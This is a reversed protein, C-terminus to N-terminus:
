EYHKVLSQFAKYQSLHIDGSLAKDLGSRKLLKQVPVKVESLHLQIGQEHLRHNLAELMEVASLDITNIAACDLIVARAKPRKLLLDDIYEELYSVNSFLLSEDVRLSLVSPHCEVDFHLINRFHETDSVLGVEAIHPRSTHHLLLLISAIIGSAVGVEVGMLLTLVVTILVAAFDSKSFDWARKFISFDVLSLVAVIITAALMAIPLYHLLPTLFLAALSIGIATFIAAFQTEAGADYNVVSRAFGGTVPFAGSASSAINAAGLAILEQNGDIRERKKASLTRGVSVSEVYGIISILVAPIFLAEVAAWSFSPLSLSPMGTPISGVIAVGQKDLGFNAVLLTTVAVGVVPAAKSVSFALGKELGLQQLFAAAGQRAWYLFAVSGIGILVTYLNFQSANIVTSYAIEIFNHGEVSVGLIHKFQSLAIVIGSATIFGAVVPHSLFNSIFGLKFVGLLLLFIGSLLALLMAGEIYGIIGLATVKGLASATMLSAIAVPGVALTKCSGFLAYAILPFISAYLGLEAPVGALMAYALSQPILMITVVTAAILDRSFKVRDYTGVQGLLPVLRTLKEM